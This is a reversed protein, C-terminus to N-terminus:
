TLPRCAMDDVSSIGTTALGRNDFHRFDTAQLPKGAAHGSRQRGAGCRARTADTESRKRHQACRHLGADVHDDVADFEVPM